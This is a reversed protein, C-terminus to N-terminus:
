EAQPRGSSGRVILEPLLIQRPQEVPQGRVLKDLMDVLVRTSHQLPQSVTTLGPKLYRVFLANDFGVVSLTKGIDYGYKEAIHIARLAVYDSVAVVATPRQNAELQQWMEFAAQVDYFDYDEQVIYVDPTALGAARMAAQFGSFRYNGTLSDPTWGLFAIRQHGLAILHETAMRMGAQGDTDVWHFEWDDNARGFSVFPFDQQILYQIRPDDMDTDAIVFGDVRGSRILDDYVAIPDDPPHTFTLLHYGREEASRALFFAFQELLWSAEEFPFFHWAYGILSTRSAQLNRAVINPRYGLQQATELVHEMTRHSIMETRNNLAYSVTAISVGAARAVDKITPM